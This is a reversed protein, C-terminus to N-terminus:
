FKTKIEQGSQSQWWEFNPINIDTYYCSQLVHSLDFDVLFLAFIEQKLIFLNKKGKRLWVKIDTTSNSNTFTM